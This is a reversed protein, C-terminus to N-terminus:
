AATTEQVHILRGALRPFTKTIWESTRSNDVIVAQLGPHFQYLLLAAWTVIRYGRAPIGQISVGPYPTIIALFEPAITGKVLHRVAVGKDSLQISFRRTGAWGKEVLSLAIM